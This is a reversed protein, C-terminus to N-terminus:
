NVLNIGILHNVEAGSYAFFRGRHTMGKSSYIVQGYVKKQAQSYFLQYIKSFTVIYKGESYYKLAEEMTLEVNGIKVINM